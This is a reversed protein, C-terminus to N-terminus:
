KHDLIRCEPNHIAPDVVLWPMNVKQTLVLSDYVWILSTNYLCLIMLRGITNMLTNMLPLSFATTLAENSPTLRQSTSRGSKDQLYMGFVM